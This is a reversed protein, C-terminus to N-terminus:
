AHLLGDASAQARRKCPARTLPVTEQEIGLARLTARNAETTNADSIGADLLRLQVCRRRRWERLSVVTAVMTSVPFKTVRVRRSCERNEHCRGAIDATGQPGSSLAFSMCSSPM